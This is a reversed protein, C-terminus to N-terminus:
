TGLEAIKALRKLSRLIALDFGRHLLLLEVLIYRAIGRPIGLRFPVRELPLTPYRPWSSCLRETRSSSYAEFYSPASSQAYGSGPEGRQKALESAHYIQQASPRWRRTEIWAVSLSSILPKHALQIELGNYLHYLELCYRSYGELMCLRRIGAKYLYGVLSRWHPYRRKRSGSRAKAENSAMELARSHPRGPCDLRGNPHEPEFLGQLSLSNSWTGAEM